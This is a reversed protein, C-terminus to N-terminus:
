NLIIVFKLIYALVTLHLVMVLSFAVRTELFPFPLFSSPLPKRGSGAMSRGSVPVCLVQEENKGWAKAERDSM